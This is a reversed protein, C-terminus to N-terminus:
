FYRYFKEDALELMERDGRSNGYAYVYDIASFDFHEKLRNVKEGGRCNPTRFRGTLINNQIEVETAVLDV